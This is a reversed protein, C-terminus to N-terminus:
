EGGGLTIFLALVVILGITVQMGGMDPLLGDLPNSGGGGGGNNNQAELLQDVLEQKAEPSLGSNMIDNIASEQSENQQAIARAQDIDQQRWALAGGGVVGTAAGAKFWNSSLASSGGSQLDDLVRRARSPSIDDVFKTARALTAGTEDALKAALSIKGM